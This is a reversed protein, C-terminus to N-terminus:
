YGEDGEDSKTREFKLPYVAVGMSRPDRDTHFTRDVGIWLQLPRGRLGSIDFTETVYTQTTITTERKLSDCPQDLGAIGDIALSVRVPQDVSIDQTGIAMPVAVSEGAPVFEFCAQEGTWNVRHGGWQETEHFGRSTIQRLVINGLDSVRRRNGGNPRIRAQLVEHMAPLVAQAILAHGIRNPHPDTPTNTTARWDFENGRLFADLTPGSEVIGILEQECLGRLRQHNPDLPPFPRHERPSECIFVALLPIQRERCAAALRRYADEVAGWGSCPTPTKNLRDTQNLMYFASIDSYYGRWVSPLHALFLHRAGLFDPEVWRVPAMLDNNDWQILVADPELSLGTDLFMEVEQIATYGPAATNVFEVTQEPEMLGRFEAELLEMYNETQPVGLGFMTSDGLGVVRFTNPPKPISVRADRFGQENIRVIVGAYNGIAGSRLRYGLDPNSDIEVMQHFHIRRTPDTPLPQSHDRLDGRYNVTLGIRIALEGLPLLSLVAFVTLCRFWLARRRHKRVRKYV